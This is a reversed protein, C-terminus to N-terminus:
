ADQADSDHLELMDRYTLRQRTLTITVGEKQGAKGKRKNHDTYSTLKAKEFWRELGATTAHPLAIVTQRTVYASPLFITIDTQMADPEDTADQATTVAEHAAIDRAADQAAQAAQASNDKTTNKVNAM